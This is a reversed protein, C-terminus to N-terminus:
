QNRVWCYHNLFEKEFKERTMSRDKMILDTPVPTNRTTWKPTCKLTDSIMDIVDANVYHVITLFLQGGVKLNKLIREWYVDVPYHFGCSYWSTILDFQETWETTTDLFVFDEKNISSTSELTSVVSDWKNYFPYRIGTQDYYYYKRLPSKIWPSTAINSFNKDLLYFKGGGSMQYLIMDILSNGSGIDLVTPNKLLSYDYLESMIRIREEFEFIIQAIIDDYTWVKDWASGYGGAQIWLNDLFNYSDSCTLQMPLGNIPNKFTLNIEPLENTDLKIHM